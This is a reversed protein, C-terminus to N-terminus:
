KVTKLAEDAFGQLRDDDQTKHKGQPHFIYIRDLFGKFEGPKTGYEKNHHLREINNVSHDAKRKKHHGKSSSPQDTHGSEKDKKQEITNLAAEEALTYKNAIVLMEKSTRPNKVVLKHILSSDTFGKKFFMIISKDNVEPIINRKNCFHKIFDRLSEGKKQVVSALDWEVGPTHLHGLFQQHIAPMLSVLFLSVGYPTSPAM